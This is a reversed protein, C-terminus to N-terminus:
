NLDDSTPGSASKLANTVEEYYITFAAVTELESPRYEGYKKAKSCPLRPLFSLRRLGALGRFNLRHVQKGMVEPTPPEVIDAACMDAVLQYRTLQGFAPKSFFRAISRDVFQRAKEFSLRESSLSFSKWQKGLKEAITWHTEANKITCLTQTQWEHAQWNCFFDSTPDQDPYLAYLRNMYTFFEDLSRFCIQRQDIPTKHLAKTNFSIHIFSLCLSFDKRHHLLHM